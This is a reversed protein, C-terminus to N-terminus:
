RSRGSASSVQDTIGGGTGNGAGAFDSDSKAGLVGAYGNVKTLYDTYSNGGSVSTTSGHEDRPDEEDRLVDLTLEMSPAPQMDTKFPMEVKPVAVRLRRTEKKTVRYAFVLDGTYAGRLMYGYVRWVWEGFAHMHRPDRFRLTVSVSTRERRKPYSVQADRAFSASCMRQDWGYSVSEVVVPFSEATGGFAEQPAWSFTGNAAQAYLGGGDPWSMSGLEFGDDWLANEVSGGVVSM